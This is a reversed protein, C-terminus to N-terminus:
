MSKAMGGDKGCEGQVDINSKETLGEQSNSFVVSGWDGGRGIRNLGTVVVAM